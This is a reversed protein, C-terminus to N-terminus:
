ELTIISFALCFFLNVLFILFKLLDNSLILYSFEHLVDFTCIAWSSLSFCFMGSLVRILHFSSFRRRHTLLHYIMSLFYVATVVHRYQLTALSNMILLLWTFLTLGSMLLGPLKASDSYVLVCTYIMIFM